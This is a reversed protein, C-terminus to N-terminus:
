KDNLLKVVCGPNRKQLHKIVMEPEATETFPTPIDTTRFTKLIEPDEFRAIWCNESKYILIIGGKTKRNKTESVNQELSM